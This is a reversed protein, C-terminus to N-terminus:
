DHCAVAMRSIHLTTQDISFGFDCFLPGGEDTPIVWLSGSTVIQDGEHKGIEVYSTSVVSSDNVESPFELFMTYAPSNTNAIDEIKLQRGNISSVSIVHNNESVTAAENAGFYFILILATTFLVLRLEGKLTLGLLGLSEKEFDRQM